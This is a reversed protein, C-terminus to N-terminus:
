FFSMVWKTLADFQAPYAVFYAVAVVPALLLIADRM